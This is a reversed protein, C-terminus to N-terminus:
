YYETKVHFIATEHLFSSGVSVIKDARPLGSAGNASLACPDPTSLVMSGCARAAQRDQSAPRMRPPNDPAPPACCSSVRSALAPTPTSRPRAATSRRPITSRPWTRRWAMMRLPGSPRLSTPIASFSHFISVRSPRCSPLLRLRGHRSHVRDAALSM